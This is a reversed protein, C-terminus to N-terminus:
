DLNLVVRELTHTMRGGPQLQMSWSREVCIGNVDKASIAVPDDVGFGPLLQTEINILEGGIMSESLLNNAYSQLAAQSAINKVNVVSVIRRGRHAISLPSQPNRNEAMAMMGASKDPNSCVCIFVNPASYIDTERTITPAIRILSTELKNRKDTKKDTFVHKINQATPLLKPELVAAGTSNFWLQKYNIEALLQNVISLYSTGAQWDERAEALVADSDTRFITPIGAATILEEIVDLYLAGAPFYLSTEVKTDRLRWCRDFAQVSVTESTSNRINSISAPMLIGLSSEIDDVTLVPMIEDSVWDVQIPHNRTDIAGALFEGQMSMKIEGARDMVLTPPNGTPFLEGYVIGSRLLKYRIMEHRVMSM